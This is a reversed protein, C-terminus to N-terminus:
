NFDSILEISKFSNQFFTFFYHYGIHKGVITELFKKRLIFFLAMIGLFGVAIFIIKLPSKSLTSFSLSIKFLIYENVLGILEKIKEENMM